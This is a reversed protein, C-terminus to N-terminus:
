EEKGYKKVCDETIKKFNVKGMLTKPIVKLYEINTPM